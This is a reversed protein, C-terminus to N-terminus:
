PMTKLGGKDVMKAAVEKMTEDAQINYIWLLFIAAQTKTSFIKYRTQYFKLKVIYTRVSRQVRRLNQSLESFTEPFCKHKTM